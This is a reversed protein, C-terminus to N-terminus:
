AALALLAAIEAAWVEIALWDRFDGDPAKAAGVVVREALGLQRRELRGAFRRHEKAHLLDMIPGIDSPDADPKPPDGIPGSSFLWVPIETLQAAYANAFTRAKKLWRGMYVASGLVVANYGDLGPVAEVPCVDVHADTGCDRLERRIIDGIREAIATTAGHRSAVAVLTRM